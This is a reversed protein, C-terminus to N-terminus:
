GQTLQQFLFFFSFLFSTSFLKKEETRKKKREETRELFLFVETALSIFRRSPFPFVGRKGNNKLYAVIEVVAGNNPPECRSKVSSRWDRWHRPHFSLRSALLLLPGWRRDAPPHCWSGIEDRGGRMRLPDFPYAWEPLVRFGTFLAGHYLPSQLLLALPPFLLHRLPLSTSVNVHLHFPELLLWPPSSPEVAEDGAM